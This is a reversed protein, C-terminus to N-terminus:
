NMNADFSTPVIPMSQPAINPSCVIHSFLPLTPCLPPYEVSDAHGITYFALRRVEEKEVLPIHSSLNVAAPLKAGLHHLFERFVLNGITVDTNASGTHIIADWTQAEAPLIQTKLIDEGDIAVQWGACITTTSRRYYSGCMTM